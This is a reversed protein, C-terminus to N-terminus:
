KPERNPKLDLVVGDEYAYLAGVVRGDPGFEVELADTEIQVGGTAVPVVSATPWHRFLWRAAAIAEPTIPLAGYSDWNPQLDALADFPDEIVKAIRNALRRRDRVAKAKPM